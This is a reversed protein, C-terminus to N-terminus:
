RWAGLAHTIRRLNGAAESVVGGLAERVLAAEDPSLLLSGDEQWGYAPVADASTLDWVTGLRTDRILEDDGALEVTATVTPRKRYRTGEAVDTTLSRVIARASM